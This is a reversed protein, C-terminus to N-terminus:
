KEKRDKLYEKLIDYKAKLELYEKLLVYLEGDNAQAIEIAKSKNEM